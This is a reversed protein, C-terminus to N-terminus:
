AGISSRLAAALSESFRTVDAEREAEVMVRALPETGSYRLVIRGNEGLASRAEALARSVEPLTELPPKSRVKVNLIKQPFDKLGEVLAELSGNMSVLSAMKLATLLGDGAPCDDLFIVHGSQEGGLVNGSRLMEELVYRDGVATRALAIGEHALARELGLNSMSTAVIRNGKLQGKSKLYRAAALLVADGNVLRGTGSVFLARDADGDFAVGLQAREAVVRKELSATHLSGCGANINKGDPQVHTAIVDAGLSRFLEPGLKYAAGNACDLVVRMGALKAGPLVRGRLFKLYDADLTEDTALAPTRKPPAEARLRFIDAEIEEEVADPLKMGAGSFVKVGNDHYPNHSASIVVGAQFKDQRVVCAVGPTTIVGAFAVKVGSTALGAAIMAALHPGSERTDMGILVRPAAHERRLYLGLARGTAYLTADDLPETGPIGRIGDTGFLEKGM